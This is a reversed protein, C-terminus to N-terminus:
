VPIRQSTTRRESRDTCLTPPGRRPFMAIFACTIYKNYAGINWQPALGVHQHALGIRLRDLTYTHDYHVATFREFHAVQAHKLRTLATEDRILARTPAFALLHQYYSDV